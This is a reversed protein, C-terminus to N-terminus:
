GSDEAAGTPDRTEREKLRRWWELRRAIEKEYGMSGPSYFTSKALEAPLYEQAV